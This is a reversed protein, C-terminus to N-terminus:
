LIYSSFVKLDTLTFNDEFIYASDAGGAIAAMTALYGCKGGMTEM